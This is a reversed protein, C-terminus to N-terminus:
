SPISDHKATKHKILKVISWAAFGVCIVPYLIMGVNEFEMAFDSVFLGMMPAYLFIAILIFPTETLLAILPQCVLMLVWYVLSVIYMAKSKSRFFIFFLCWAAIFVVAMVTNLVPLEGAPDICAGFNCAGAAIFALLLGILPIRFRRKDNSM